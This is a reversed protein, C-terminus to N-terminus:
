DVKNKIDKWITEAEEIKNVKYLAAVIIKKVADSNEYFGLQTFEAVAKRGSTIALDFKQELYYIYTQAALAEALYDQAFNEVIKVNKTLITEALKLQNAGVMLQAQNINVQSLYRYAESRKATDHTISTYQKLLVQANKLVIGAIHNKSEFSLNFKILYLGYLNDALATLRLQDELKVESIISFLKNFKPLIDEHSKMRKIRFVLERHLAVAQDEKNDAAKQAQAFLEISNNDEFTSMITGSYILLNYIKSNLIEKYRKYLCKRLLEYDGLILVLSDLWVAMDRLSLSLFEKKIEQINIKTLLKNQVLYKYLKFQEQFKRLGLDNLYSPTDIKRLNQQHSLSTIAYNVRHNFFDPWQKSYLYKNKELYNKLYM